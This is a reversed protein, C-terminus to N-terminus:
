MCVCSFTLTVDESIRPKSTCHVLTTKRTTETKGVNRASKHLETAGDRLSTRQRQNSEKGSKTGCATKHCVQGNFIPWLKTAELYGSSLLAHQVEDHLERKRWNRQEEYVTIDCNDEDDVTDEVVVGGQRGHRSLSPM